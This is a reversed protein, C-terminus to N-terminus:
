TPDSRLISEIDRAGHLIRVVGLSTETARYSILHNKFRSVPFYRLSALDRSDTEYLSGMEPMRLLRNLTARAARLFHSASQPGHHRIYEASAALDREAERHLDLFRSM